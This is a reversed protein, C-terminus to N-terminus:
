DKLRLGFFICLFAYFSSGYCVRIKSIGDFSSWFGFFLFLFSQNQELCHKRCTELMLRAEFCLSLVLRFFVGFFHNGFLFFFLFGLYGLFQLKFTMWPQESVLQHFKKFVVYSRMYVNFCATFFNPIIFHNGQNIGYFAM